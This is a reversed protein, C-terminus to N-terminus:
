KILVMKKTSVFNGATIRYIYMGTAVKIGLNNDANWDISHNGSVMEQNILTKVERGLMDYVKITVFGNQPIAFNIKTTPNFPNPYNQSLEFATPITEQEEVATAGSTKFSGTTSYSSTSGNDTKSLVRWYYTSNQDLGTVQAVPENLNAKTQASSFDSNKSYQLDYKLHSDTPVPIKWTLVASTNNIPQGYNPSIVLPVVSSSGAATSFSAVMSWSSFIAPTATLRSRVQWYYTAGATLSYPIASVLISKTPDTVPWGGSATTSVALPHNLMGSGDVSSSQAIRVQYDLSETAPAAWFLTVGSLPSDLIQGGVPTSPIPTTAAGSATTAVIFTATSSWASETNPPGALRSQVHWYYQTGPILSVAVASFLDTTWGLTVPAVSFATGAGGVLTNATSYQARFELGTAYVDIYYYLVPPNTYITPTPSGDPWSPIPVPPTTAVSSFMVFTSDGATSWNSYTAGAFSRVQWVYTEGATLNTTLTKYLKNSTTLVQPVGYAGSSLRYRIQYDLGPENGEIYWFFTPKSAYVTAADIPYSRIPTPPGLTTFTSVTSYSIIVSGTSNKTRVQVYYTTSNTLGTLTYNPTTLNSITGVPASMDSNLSYTLDYKLGSSYPVPSWGVYASTVSPIVPSIMPVSENVTNFERSVLIAGANGDDTVKWYYKKPALSTGNQLVVSATSSYTFTYTTAGTVAISPAIVPSSFDANDDVYLHYNPGTGPTLTWDFSPLISVGLAYNAPTQALIIQSFFLIIIASITLKNKM